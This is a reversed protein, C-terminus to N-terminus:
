TWLIYSMLNIRELGKVLVQSGSGHHKQVLEGRVGCGPIDGYDHITAVTIKEDGM